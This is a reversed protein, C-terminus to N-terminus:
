WEEEYDINPNELSRGETWIWGAFGNLGAAFCM